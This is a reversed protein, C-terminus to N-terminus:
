RLRQVGLPQLDFATPQNSLQLALQQAAGCALAWGHAGHGLNLWLGPAAPGLVPAGDPVQPRPGKWNTAEHIVACGPFSAELAAYLRTLSRPRLADEPGGFDDVAAVRVRQGLRTIVIGTDADLVAAQPGQVTVGDVHGLPATVAHGWPALLPLKVGAARLLGRSGLGACVVVADFDLAEGTTLLLQAPTASGDRQAAAVAAVPSDFRFLAGAKQAQTKLLHALQRGNGVMAAPLQVAARLPWSAALGPELARAADADLLALGPFADPRAAIAQRVASVQAPQSLLVLGGTQQEYALNFQQTLEGLRRRSAHALALVAPTRAATATPRSARLSAWWWPLHRLAALPGLWAPRQSAGLGPVGAPLPACAALLGPLAFSGQTAVSSRREFVTVQHQQLALELATAVGVIGAGIVAVKLAM